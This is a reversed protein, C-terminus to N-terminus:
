VHVGVEGILAAVDAVLIRKKPIIPIISKPIDSVSLAKEPVGFLSVNQFHWRLAAAECLRRDLWEQTLQSLARTGVLVKVNGSQLKQRVRIRIRHGADRFEVNAQVGVVGTDLVSRASKASAVGGRKREQHDDAGPIFAKKWHKDGPIADLYGLRVTV